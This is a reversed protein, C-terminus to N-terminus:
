SRRGRRIVGIKQEYASQTHSPYKAGELQYEYGDDLRFTDGRKIDADVTALLTFAPTVFSGDATEIQPTRDSTPILRITQPALSTTAEDYGGSDTRVRLRRQLVITLPDAAIFADTMRRQAILEASLM